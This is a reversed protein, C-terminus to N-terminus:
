PGAAFTGRDAAPVVHQLVGPPLVIDSFVRREMTHTGTRKDLCVAVALQRM